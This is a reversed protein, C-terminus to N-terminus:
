NLSFVCKERDIIMNFARRYEKRELIAIWRNIMDTSKNLVIPNSTQSILNLFISGIKTRKLLFANM